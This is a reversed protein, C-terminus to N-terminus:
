PHKEHGYRNNGNLPKVVRMPSLFKLDRCLNTLGWNLFSRWEHIGRYWPLLFKNYIFTGDEVREDLLFLVHGHLKNRIALMVHYYIEFIGCECLMVWGHGVFHWPWPSSSIVGVLEFVMRRCTWNYYHSFHHALM